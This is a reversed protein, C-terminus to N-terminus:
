RLDTMAARDRQISLVAEVRNKVNLKQMIQTMYYKVTKESISLSNAIHKNSAGDLLQEVIQGERHTLAVETDVDQKAPKRGMEKVLKMALAPALYERGETVCKLAEFFDSRSSGKLAYGSAGASLAAVCDSTKDSASFVLIKPAGPGSNALKAITGLVDGPLQLDFVIVEPAHDDVLPPVDNANAASAVVQFQDSGSIIECIGALVIPHDDVVIVSTKM